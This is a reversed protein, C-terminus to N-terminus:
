KSGKGMREAFDTMDRQATALQKAVRAMLTAADEM